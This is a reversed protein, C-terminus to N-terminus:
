QQTDVVSCNAIKSKVEFIVGMSGTREPCIVLNPFKYTTTIRCSFHAGPFSLATLTVQPGCYEENPFQASVVISEQTNCSSNSYSAILNFVNRPIWNSVSFTNELCQASCKAGGTVKKKTTAFLVRLGERSEKGTLTVFDPGNTGCYSLM